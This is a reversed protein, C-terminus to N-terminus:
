NNPITKNKVEHFVFVFMMSYFAHYYILLSTFLKHVFNDM